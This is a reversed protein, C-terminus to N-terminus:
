PNKSSGGKKIDEAIFINEPKIDRHVVPCIEGKISVGQHACELGLCIQLSFDLFKSITLPQSTIIQKLNQGQLYEMVYFPVQEDTLGYSLVRVINQSKRGLQAGIFIERGFRQSMQQNAISLSLMKVAVPMGGKATDEALNFGVWEGKAM